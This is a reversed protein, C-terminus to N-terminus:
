KKKGHLSVWRAEYSRLIEEIQEQDGPYMKLELIKRVLKPPFYDQEQSILSWRADDGLRDTAKIKADLKKQTAELEKKTEHNAYAVGAIGLGGALATGKFAARYVRVSRALDFSHEITGPYNSDNKYNAVLRVDQAFYKVRQVRKAFNSAAIRLPNAQVGAQVLLSAVLLAVKVFNTKM